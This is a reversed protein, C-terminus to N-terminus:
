TRREQKRSVADIQADYITELVASRNAIDFNDRVYNYAAQGMSQALDPDVLFRLYAAALSGVDRPNVAFGTIGDLLAEYTGTENSGVVPIGMSQAEILVLGFGESDGNAAERSPMTFVRATTMLELLAAHRLAGHYTINGISRKAEEVISRLPGDGAVHLEANPLTRRVIEFAEIVKDLGKKEVLRGAYVVRPLSASVDAQPRGQVDIGLYHVCTNRRDFGQSVLKDRLYASVPLILNGSKILAKRWFAYLLGYSSALNLRRTVDYGHGTVVLPISHRIAYPLMFAGGMMYHAHIIDPRLTSILEDMKRSIGLRFLLRERVPSMGSGVLITRPVDAYSDGSNEIAVLTYEYRALSRCHAAIFTESLALATETFVMVHKAM